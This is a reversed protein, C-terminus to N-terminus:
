TCYLKISNSFLSKIWHFPVRRKLIKSFTLKAVFKMFLIFSRYSLRIKWILLYYNKMDFFLLQYVLFHQIPLLFENLSGTGARSEMLWEIITGYYQYYYYIKWIIKMAKFFIIHIFYFQFIRFWKYLDNCFEPFIPFWTLSRWISHINNCNPGGLLIM